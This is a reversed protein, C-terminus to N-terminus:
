RTGVQQALTEFAALPFPPPVYVLVRTFGLAEWQRLMALPDAAIEQWGAHLSLDFGARNRGRESLGADLAALLTPFHERRRWQINLGDAFRGALRAMKPRNAGVIIPPRPQPAPAVIAGDLQYYAGTFTVPEGSWLLPLLQVAEEMRALREAPSGQVIGFSAQEYALGGAGLGLEVRGGAIEQLTAVIKALRGPHRNTNNAVLPGLRIRRTATALAALTTLGELVSERPDNWSVYHDWVWVSDFGLRDLQQAAEHLASYPTGFTALCFGIPIM